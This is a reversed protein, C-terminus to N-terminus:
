ISRRSLRAMCSGAVLPKYQNVVSHCVVTYCLRNYQSSVHMKRGHFNETMLSILTCAANLAGFTAFTSQYINKVVNM